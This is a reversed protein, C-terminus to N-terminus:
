PTVKVKDEKFHYLQNLIPDQYSAVHKDVFNLITRSENDIRRTMWVIVDLCPLVPTKTTAQHLRFELINKYIGKSLKKSPDYQLLVQFYKTQLAQFLTNWKFSTMKDVRCEM